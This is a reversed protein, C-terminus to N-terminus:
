KVSKYYVDFFHHLGELREESHTKQIHKQPVAVVAFQFNKCKLSELITELLKQPTFAYLVLYTLLLM